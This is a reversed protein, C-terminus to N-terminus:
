KLSEIQKIFDNVDTDRPVLGRDILHQYYHPTCYDSGCCICCSRKDCLNNCIICYFGEHKDETKNISTMSSVRKSTNQIM